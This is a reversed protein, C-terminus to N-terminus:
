VQITIIQCSFYNRVQCNPCECPKTKGLPRGRKRCQATISPPLVSIVTEKGIAVGEGMAVAGESDKKEVDRAAAIVASEEQEGENHVVLQPETSDPAAVINNSTDPTIVVYDTGPIPIIKGPVAIYDHLDSVGPIICPDM